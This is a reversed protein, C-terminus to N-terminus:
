IKVPKTPFEITDVNEKEVIVKQMIPNKIDDAFYKAISRLEHQKLANNRCIRNYTDLDRMKRKISKRYIPSNMRKLYEARVVDPGSLKKNNSM